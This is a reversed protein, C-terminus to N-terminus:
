KPSNIPAVLAANFEGSFSASRVVQTLGHDEAKLFVGSFCDKILLFKGPADAVIIAKANFHKPADTLKVPKINLDRHSFEIADLAANGIVLVDNREGTAM